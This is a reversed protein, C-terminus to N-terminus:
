ASDALKVSPALQLIKKPAAKSLENPVLFRSEFEDRPVPKSFLYGQMEDCRLLRLMQAQEDQDVGEAVVKLRMSHALSIITSVLSMTNPDEMMTIVFSRDIKLSQVPLRALYGLSSYGTGFDDVFITIGLERIAILKEINSDMDSMILSETIELDIGPPSAGFALAQKVTEVFDRQQLQVPSVNVAIRPSALGLDLWHRHDLVARVMAWSGVELILGTEELIPIFNAPPVLGTAPDNWRILAEVGTISGTVLDIKPQYHLVFEEKELAGRLKNELNLREAVREGMQETYFMFREGGTKAKKLASEANRLLTEADGGENPFMAIGLRATVRLETDDVVFPKDFIERYNRRIQRAADEAGIVTPFVKAFHDGGIRAVRNVDTVARRIREAIQKLLRDGTARGLTDNITKFREVNFIAVAFQKGERGASGLLQGVRERFLMANAFGTLADYYALYNLKEGQEIYDMAFALNEALELLLKTEEFDFAGAEGAFLSIVGAPRGGVALPFCAMSRHGRRLIEDRLPGIHPDTAIDNSIVPQLQRLARCAPRESEPMGEHATLRLHDTFGEEGGHWAVVKGELTKPDVVGVWAMRFAGADVAIRCAERFLEDRDHIRVMAANIQGSVARTRALRALKQQRDLNGVAFAIDGALENLLKMEEAHFFETEGAYLALIGAAEGDVILPLVALSRIGTAAHLAGLLVKPDGLSDNAVMPRKEAIARGFMSKPADEASALLSRVAAMLKDGVGASAVVRIQKTDADVQGLMAMNFGGQEVAIRCAEAFLEGRDRARVILTNIGSLVAYVRNLYVIRAEGENRETIDEGISATGIVEGSGSRLVTNSWRMNRRRGDRTMLNNDRRWAPPREAALAEFFTTANDAAPALFSEFWNRGIAEERRWGTLQLLYDNCYTIRGATDLMVSALDINALMDSFRRESALLEQAALKRETIDRVLSVIMWHGNACVPHRRLEIWYESGDERVRQLEQPEAPAGGAIVADYAQELKARSHEIIGVPGQAILEERTQGQLLCAASNVHILSMTTRDALFVADSTADMATSFRQLDATREQVKQELIAGQNQLLDGYAKLRLLNRVKLWLEARDVPKTLFDEAGANLGAIRSDRDSNATVMIIPINVTALNAKLLSAVQYGDMGPMMLDLLILDPAQEAVSVLAARGDAVSRTLYGEPKLLVELLKRNQIEDDVILITANTM